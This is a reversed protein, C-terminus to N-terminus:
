ISEIGLDDLGSGAAWIKPFPGVIKFEFRLVHLFQFVTTEYV